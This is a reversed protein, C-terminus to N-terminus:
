KSSNGSYRSYADIITEYIGKLLKFMLWAGFFLFSFGLSLGGVVLLDDPSNVLQMGWNVGGVISILTIVLGIWYAFLKM